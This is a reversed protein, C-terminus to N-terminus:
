EINSRTIYVIRSTSYEINNDSSNVKSTHQFTLTIQLVTSKLIYKEIRSGGGEM